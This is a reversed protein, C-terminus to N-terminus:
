TSLSTNRNKKCLIPHVHFNLDDATAGPFKRKRFNNQKFLNEETLGNLISDGMIVLNRIPQRNPQLLCIKCLIFIQHFRLDWSSRLIKMIPYWWIIRSGTKVTVVFTNSLMSWIETKDMKFCIKIPVLRFFWFCGYCAVTWFLIQSM